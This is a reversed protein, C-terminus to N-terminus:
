VAVSLARDIVPHTGSIRSAVPSCLFVVRSAAEAPTGFKATPHAKLTASHLHPMNKAITQWTGGDFGESGAWAMGKHGGTAGARKGTLGLDM